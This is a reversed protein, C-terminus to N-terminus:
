QKKIKNVWMEYDELQRITLSMLFVIVSHFSIISRYIKRLAYSIRRYVFVEFCFLIKDM